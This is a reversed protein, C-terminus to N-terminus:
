ADPFLSPCVAPLRPSLGHCSTVLVAWITLNETHILGLFSHSATHLPCGLLALELGFVPGKLLGPPSPCCDGPSRHSPLAKEQPGSTMFVNAIRHYETSVQSLTLRLAFPLVSSYAPNMPQPPPCDSPVHHADKDRARTLTRDEGCM